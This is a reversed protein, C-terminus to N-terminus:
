SLKPAKCTGRINTPAHDMTLERAREGERGGERGRDKGERESEGERGSQLSPSLSLSPFSLPPLAGARFGERGREREGERGRGGERQAATPIEKSKRERTSQTCTSRPLIDISMSRYINPYTHECIDVSILINISM